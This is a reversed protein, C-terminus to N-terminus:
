EMHPHIIRHCPVCVGRLTWLPEEGFTEPYVLHHVHDAPLEGCSECVGGCRKMVLQRKRQWNPSKLYADYAHWWARSREGRQHAIAAENAKKYELVATNYDDTARGEADNDWLELVGKM